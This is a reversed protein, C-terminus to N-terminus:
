ASSRGAKHRKKRVAFAIGQANLSRDTRLITNAQADSGLGVTDLLDVFIREVGTKCFEDLADGEHDSAFAEDVITTYADLQPHLRDAVGQLDSVSGYHTLMAQTAGTAVIRDVSAKAAAGDFDTPSTSPLAFLGRRQLQPYVLGFADGTFIANSKSDLVCFHHNAHGRTHLFRLTREGFTLVEDDAMTRVRDADIPDVSGYLAAFQEKGYVQKASAVLKTPDIAHTAARPHALLTANPCARMLAAAGGAHDLHVHTIVVYRVQKPSMGEADLAALMAPVSRNTATEVFAAEGGERMLYTATFGEHGFYRADITTITM